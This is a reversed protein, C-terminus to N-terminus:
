LGLDPKEPGEGHSAALACRILRSATEPGIDEIMTGVESVTLAPHRYELALHMLERLSKSTTGVVAGAWLGSARLARFTFNMRWRDGAHDFSVEGTLLDSRVNM